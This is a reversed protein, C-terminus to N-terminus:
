TERWGHWQQWGDWSQGTQSAQQWDHWGERDEWRDPEDSAEWDQWGQWGSGKGRRPQWEQQEWWDRDTYMASPWGSASARQPWVACVAVSASHQVRFTRPERRRLAVCVHSEGACLATPVSGAVLPVIQLINGSTPSLVYLESKKRPASPLANADLPSIDASVAYLRGHGAAIKIPLEVHDTCLTRSPVGDFKFAQLERTDAVFLEEGLCALSKPTWDDGSTLRFKFQLADQSLVQICHNDNDTVFVLNGGLCLDEDFAGPLSFWGLKKGDSLSRKAVTGSEDEVTFVAGDACAIGSAHLVTFACFEDVDEDGTEWLVKSQGTSLSLSGISLVGDPILGITADDGDSLMAMSVLTLCMGAEERLIDRPSLDKDGTKLVLDKVLV